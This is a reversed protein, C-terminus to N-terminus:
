LLLSSTFPNTKHIIRIYLIPIILIRYTDIGRLCETFFLSLDTDTIENGCLM